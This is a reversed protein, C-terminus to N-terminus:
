PNGVFGILYLDITGAAAVTPGLTITILIKTDVTNNFLLGTSALTQTTTGAQGINSASLYRTGSAADGVSLTMANTGADLDTSVAIIGTVVFGAPVIFAEIVNATVLDAALVTVRRGFTKTTRSEGLLGAQPQTFDTRTPM